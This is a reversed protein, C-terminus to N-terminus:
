LDSHDLQWQVELELDELTVFGDFEAMDWYDTWDANDLIEILKDGWMAEEEDEWDFDLAEIAEFQEDLTCLDDGDFDCEWM